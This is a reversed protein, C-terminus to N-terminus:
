HNIPLEIVVFRAEQEIHIHITDTDWVGIAEKKHVTQVPVSISGHLVFLYICKNVPNM